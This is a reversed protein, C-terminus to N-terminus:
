RVKLNEKCTFVPLSKGKNKSGDHSYELKWVVGKSVGLALDILQNIFQQIEDVTPIM